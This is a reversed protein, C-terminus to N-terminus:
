TAVTKEISVLGSKKYARVRGTGSLKTAELGSGFGFGFFYFNEFGFGVRVRRTRTRTPNRTQFGSVRGDRDIKYIKKLEHPNQVNSINFHEEPFTFKEFFKKSLGM